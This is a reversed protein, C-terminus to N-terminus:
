KGGQKIQTNGWKHTTQDEFMNGSSSSLWRVLFGFVLMTSAIGFVPTLVSRVSSPFWPCYTSNSSGLMGAIIPISACNSANTFLNFLPAFPNIFDFNFMDVISSFYDGSDSHVDPSGPATNPFSGSQSFSGSGYFTSDNNLTIIIPSFTWSTDIPLLGNNSPSYIDLTFSYSYTTISQSTPVSCIYDITNNSLSSLSLSCYSSYGSGSLSVNFRVSLNSLDSSSISDGLFFSGSAYVSSNSSISELSPNFNLGFSVSRIKSTYYILNDTTQTGNRPVQPLLESIDFSSSYHVGDVSRESNFYLNDFMYHYPLMSNVNIQETLPATNVFEPISFTSSSSSTEFPLKNGCRMSNLYSSYYTDANDFISQYYDLSYPAYFSGLYSLNLHASDYSYGPNNYSSYECKGTSTNYTANIYSSNRFSYDNLSNIDETFYYVPGRVGAMISNHNDPFISGHIVFSDVEYQLASAGSSASLSLGLTIALVLLLGCCKNVGKM